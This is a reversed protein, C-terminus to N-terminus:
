NSVKQFTVQALNDGEFRGTCEAAGNSGAKCSIEPLVHRSGDDCRASGRSKIMLTGSQQLGSFVDAKCVVNDSLLLRVTGKNNAIRYRLTPPKGAIPNSFQVRAQWSGNLFQTSGTKLQDAPLVLAGKAPPSPPIVPDPTQVVAPVAVALMLPLTSAPPAAAVVPQPPEIAAPEAPAAITTVNKEATPQVFVYGASVLTILVACGVAAYIGRRSPRVKAAIPMVAEPLSEAQIAYTAAIESQAPIKSSMVPEGPNARVLAAEALGTTLVSHTERPEHIRLCALADEQMTENQNIFGWFTIVPKGEVLYLYQSGPFQLAKGVLSGFLRLATKESHQCQNSLLNVSTQCHELYGLAASRQQESAAAWSTVKGSVPAYWDIRSGSDNIQPIALADAVAQQKRLRLTERIQLASDFVAQGNEGLSLFDDPCGSRLLSNTM